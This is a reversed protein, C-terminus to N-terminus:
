FRACYVNYTCAVISPHLTLPSSHEKFSGVSQVWLLPAPPQTGLIRWPPKAANYCIERIRGRQQWGHHVGANPNNLSPPFDTELETRTVSWKGACLFRVHLPKKVHPVNTCDPSCGNVMNMDAPFWLACTSSVSSPVNHCKVLFSTILFKRKWTRM